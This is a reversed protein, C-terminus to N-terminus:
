LTGALRHCCVRESAPDCFQVKNGSCLALKHNVDAPLKILQLVVLRTEVHVHRREELDCAEAPVLADPRGDELVGLQEHATDAAIGVGLQAIRRDRRMQIIHVDRTRALRRHRHLRGAPEGASRRAPRLLPLRRALGGPPGPHRATPVRRRLGPLPDVATVRRLERPDRRERIVRRELCRSLTVPGPEPGVGLKMDGHRCGPLVAEQYVQHPVAQRLVVADQREAAVLYMCFIPVAPGSITMSCTVDQLPISDFLAEMDAVSRGGKREEMQYYDLGTEGIAVVRPRAALALLKDVTPEAIGENDPHVGASAWFNDYRMALAHVDEFEELTTCICLARDVQAEAMATRIEPLRAKLEPFALHCHSDVFM